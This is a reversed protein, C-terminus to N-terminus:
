PMPPKTDRSSRRSRLHGPHPFGIGSSERSAAWATSAHAVRRAGAGVAIVGERSVALAAYLVHVVLVVHDFIRAHGHALRPM